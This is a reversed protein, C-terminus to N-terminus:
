GLTLGCRGPSFVGRSLSLTHFECFPNKEDCTNEAQKDRDREREGLLHDLLYHRWADIM